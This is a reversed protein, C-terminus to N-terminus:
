LPLMWGLVFGFTLMILATRIQEERSMEPKGDSTAMRGLLASQRVLKIAEPFNIQNTSDTTNAASFAETSSSTSSSSSSTPLDVPSLPQNLAGELKTSLVSSFESVSRGKAGVDLFVSGAPLAAVDIAAQRLAAQCEYVFDDCVALVRLDSTQTEETVQAAM